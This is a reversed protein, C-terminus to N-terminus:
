YGFEDDVDDYRGEDDGYDDDYYPWDVMVPDLDIIEFRSDCRNCYVFDGIKPNRDINIDKSCSLCEITTKKSKIKIQHKM